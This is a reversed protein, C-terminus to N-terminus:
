LQNHNGIVTGNNNEIIQVTQANIEYTNTPNGRVPPKRDITKQYIEYNYFKCLTQITSIAEYIFTNSSKLQQRWLEALPKPDGIKGIAESADYCGDSDQHELVKLLGYIAEIYGIQGLACAASSRVDPDEDEIAKLLGYIVEVHGIQGLADAASSCVYCDDDELAKLLGPIAKVHGIKGLAEAAISRVDSDEDEVAKVLGPIAEVHGMQGLAEAVRSRVYSDEDELAKVLGPIAEVHGMKGLVSAATSCVYSDEDELAKILGPIAEIHGIEGLVSAATSRVDSYQDELRKLLGPIAEFYRMKGLVKAARNRVSFDDDDIAKLLEPIADIHGIKGLADVELRRLYSDNDENTLNYSFLSSFSEANELRFLCLEAEIVIEISSNFNNKLECLCNVIDQQNGGSLDDLLNIVQIVAAEELNNLSELLQSTVVNGPLSKLFYKSWTIIEREEHIIEDFNNTENQLQVVKKASIALFQIIGRIAVETGINKLAVTAAQRVSPESNESVLLELNLFRLAQFGQNRTRNFGWLPTAIPQFGTVENQIQFQQESVKMITTVSKDTGIVSLSQLAIIKVSSEQDHIIKELNPLALNETFSRFTHAVRRRLEIERTNALNILETAAMPTRAKGYLIAQIWESYSNIQGLLYKTTKEQLGSRVEGALRAGLMLDVALARDVVWVALKEDDVLALMLALPETWKLYNLYDCELREDDL